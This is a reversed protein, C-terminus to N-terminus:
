TNDTAERQRPPVKARVTALKADARKQQHPVVFTNFRFHELVEMIIALDAALPCWGRHIAAHGAEILTEFKHLEVKGIHGAAVLAKLTGSFPLSSDVKLLAIAIDFCTRIGMGALLHLDLDLASYVETLAHSLPEVNEADIVGEAMWGPRERKSLAPWYSISEIPESITGGDADYDYHMEESNTSVTQFFIKDCGRCQLLYYNIQWDFYEDGGSDSTTGIVDCNRRGSCESCMAKKVLAEARSSQNQTEM